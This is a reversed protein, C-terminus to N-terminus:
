KVREVYEGTRTDVKIKEGQQVFLPVMVSAGGELEASKMPSNATDGKIGPESYIVELVVHSPLQVSIPNESEFSILLMMGEQLFKIQDGFLAAPVMVQEFTENDMCVYMDGEQYLYQFEKVDVRLIEVDEDPSFRYEALKGTKIIRMKGQYFARLNGPTRHIFEIVQALEGNFRIFNGNSISSAKAMNLNKAFIVHPPPFDFYQQDLDLEIMRVPPIPM